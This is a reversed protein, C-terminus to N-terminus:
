RETGAMAGMVLEINRAFYTDPDSPGVLADAAAVLHPYRAPDLTLLRARKARLEAELDAAMGVSSLSGPQNVVLMLACHLLFHALEAAEEPAHGEESLVALARETVALGAPCVLVRVPALPAVAPHRRLVTVLAEVIRRLPARQDTGSGPQGPDAELMAAAEDWLRDGVAGLLAEKDSFHWYLATPTVGLQQALRRITVAELGEAEALRVAAEVVAPGSLPARPEAAPESKTSRKVMNVLRGRETYM